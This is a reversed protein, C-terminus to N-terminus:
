LPLIRNSLKKMFYSRAIRNRSFFIVSNVVADLESVNFITVALVTKTKLAVSPNYWLIIFPILPIKFTVFCIIYLESLRLLRKNLTSSITKAQKKYRRLAMFTASNLSAVLTIVFINIIASVVENVFSSTKSSTTNTSILQFLPWLFDMLLSVITTKSKFQIQYKKSLKVDLYRDLSIFCIIGTNFQRLHISFSLLLTSFKCGKMQYNTFLLLISKSFVTVIIDHVSLSMTTKSSPKRHQNTKRIAVLINVIVILAYQVITGLSM